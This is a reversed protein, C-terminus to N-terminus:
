IQSLGGDVVVETGTIYASDPGALFLVARAVEEAGGFRHLPVKAVIADAFAKVTAEDLGVKSVFPTAIPGPSVANVRIGRPALEAALSRTLSRVAAKTASLISLGPTGVANLWSTTLVISGGEVLLPVAKQVTFFLGKFNVGFQEDIQAETVAELPAALGLGANAHVIDLKGYKQSVAEIVRDIDAPKRLDAALVLGNDAVIKRAAALREPNTGVAIVEAGEARLLSVTALGIGSTGGTVLAIKGNFKSM